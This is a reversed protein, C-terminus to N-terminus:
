KMVPVLGWCQIKKEAEGEEQEKKKQSWISIYIDVPHNLFLPQKRSENKM